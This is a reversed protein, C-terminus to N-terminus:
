NQTLKLVLELSWHSHFYGFKRITASPRLGVLHKQFLDCKNVQVESQECEESYAINEYDNILASKKVGPIPGSIKIFRRSSEMINTAKAARTLCFCLCETQLKVSFAIKIEKWPIIKDLYERIFVNLVLLSKVKWFYCFCM